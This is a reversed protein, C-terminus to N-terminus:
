VKQDRESKKYSPVQGRAAKILEILSVDLYKINHAYVNRVLRISEIFGLEEDPLRAAKLLKLLSTRGNMPLSEVFDDLIDNVFVKNSLKINLGHKIIEKSSIELLADVKLIFAWDSDTKIIEGILNEHLGVAKCFKKSEELLIGIRDPAEAEQARDRRTKAKKSIVAPSKREMASCEVDQTRQRGADNTIDYLSWEPFGQSIKMLHESREGLGFV